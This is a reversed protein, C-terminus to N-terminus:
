RNLYRTMNIVFGVPAGILVGLSGYAIGLLIASLTGSATMAGYFAGGLGCAIVSIMLTHDNREEGRHRRLERRSHVYPGQPEASGCNPCKSASFSVPRGCDHCDILETLKAARMNM